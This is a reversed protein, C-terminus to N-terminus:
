LMDDACASSSGEDSSFLAFTSDILKFSSFISNLKSKPTLALEIKQLEKIALDWMPKNIHKEPVGFGEPELWQL